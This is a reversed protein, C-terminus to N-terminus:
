SEELVVTIHSTRKLIRNARGMPRPRIRKLSPGGDVMIRKVFLTDVDIGKKQVANAVASKIVKTVVKAGSKPTFALIHLAEEVKKGRVIDAVLRVKRPATRVYKAVARAEL